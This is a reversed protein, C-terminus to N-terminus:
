LLIFRDSSTQFSRKNNQILLFQFCYKTKGIAISATSNLDDVSLSYILWFLHKTKEIIPM